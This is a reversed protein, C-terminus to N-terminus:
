DGLVQRLVFFALGLILLFPLSNVLIVLLLSTQERAKGSFKVDNEQLLQTIQNDSSVPVTQFPSGNKYTGTILDEGLVVEEVQNNEVQNRFESYSIPTGQTQGANSFLSVALLLALFIGGWIMLQKVWPNQGEPPQGKPDNQDSM